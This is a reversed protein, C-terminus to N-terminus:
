LRARGAKIEAWSIKDLPRYGEGDLWWGTEGQHRCDPDWSREKLSAKAYKFMANLDMRDIFDADYHARFGFPFSTPIAFVYRQLFMIMRPIQYATLGSARLQSYLRKAFDQETEPRHDDLTIVAAGAQGDYRIMSYTKRHM